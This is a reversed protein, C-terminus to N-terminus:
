AGHQGTMHLMGYAREGHLVEDMGADEERDAMRLGMTHRLVVLIALTLVSSVAVAVLVGKGQYWLQVWLGHKPTDRLFFVLGMSGVIGAVGHIGFVDLSDDYGLRDKIRLAGYCTVSALSGLILAGAPGVSGAAPTIAVLGALVGSVLGLSTPKGGRSSDIILWTAAGSAAALQTMMLAQAAGLGSGLQSGANFAFWGVWLFGAGMMTLVLNNPNMPRKRYGRRAGLYIAGVLGAAGASIHIVTGGALDIAEGTLFGGGWVIHALPSYVCISWLVIFACYTTFRIREAFAGAIIAPTIIAFMGQFAIFAYAPIKGTKDGNAIWSTDADGLFLKATDWGVIGNVSKGFALAYGVVAWIVGILAMAAFSHMMTGLVNKRRVLGGYFMALGPVMLLVLATCIMMWATAGTDIPLRDVASAAHVNNSSGVIGIATVTMALRRM